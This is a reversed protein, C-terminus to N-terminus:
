HKPSKPPTVTPPRQDCSSSTRVKAINTLWAMLLQMQIAPTCKGGKALLAAKLKVFPDRTTTEISDSLVALAHDIAQPNVHRYMWGWAGLVAPTLGPVKTTIGSIRDIAQLSPSRAVVEAIATDSLSDVNFRKTETAALRLLLRTAAVVTSTHHLGSHQLHTNVSRRAGTDIAPNERSGDPMGRVVLCWVSVGSDVIAELRHQGDVINDHVDFAISANTFGFRGCKMDSVLRAINRRIQSRYNAHNRKLWDAAMAPTIRRLSVSVSRLQDPVVDDNIKQSFLEM